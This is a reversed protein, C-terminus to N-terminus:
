DSLASRRHLKDRFDAHPGNRRADRLRMRVHNEDASVAASGSRRRQSRDFVGPDWPFQANGLRLLHQHQVIQAAADRM